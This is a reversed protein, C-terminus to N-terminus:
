VWSPLWMHAQWFWYPVPMGIWIPFWFIAFLVALALVVGGAVMGFRASRAHVPDLGAADDGFRKVLAAALRGRSRDRRKKRAWPVVYWSTGSRGDPDDDSALSLQHSLVGIAYVLALVVFPAIAVTYFTFTTRSFLFWPVYTGAYGVLIAGARSDKTRIALVIVLILALAGAWWIAPNGVSTIARVCREAGCLDLSEQGTPIDRWYFSTPRIQLLWGFPSAAYTHESTLGAHFELTRRHYEIFSLMSDPIWGPLDAGHKVRETAAWNRLYSNESAFWSFYTGVYTIVTAPVLSFFAPLGGQMIGGLLPQPIGIRRRDRVDWAFAALGFAAAAYFGSWKTGAALGLIIGAVILWPRMPGVPGTPHRWWNKELARAEALKARAWQRDVLLAWFGLLVFMALFSDLLGTRSLVLAAGDIALLGSAMTALAPSRFLRMAIRGVLIVCIVGAIAASFRWGMGSTAGFLRMGLAILWKGMDGHVVFAADDTMHTYDGEIFEWNPEKDEVEEGEAPEPANPDPIKEWDTAYGFQDLTYADKVYYTEDFVLSHPENLNWLRLVAAVIGMLLPGLWGLMVTRRPLKEGVPPLGLMRRYRDIRGAKPETILAPHM